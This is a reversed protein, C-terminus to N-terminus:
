KNAPSKDYFDVRTRRNRQRGEDTTNDAVPQRKGYFKIALRDASIGFKQVLYTRVSEARRRSLGMNYEDSGRGDTHGQLSARTQPNKQLYDAVQKIQEHYQPRIDSKDFDFEILLEISKVAKPFPCGWEDVAEGKPTNPCRDINDRVGDEDSDLPCGCCDVAIGPPTDPCKDLHDAVGDGDSDVAPTAPTRKITTSSSACGGSTIAVWLLILLIGLAATTIKQWHSGTM